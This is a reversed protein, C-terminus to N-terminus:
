VMLPVDPVDERYTIPPQPVQLAGQDGSDPLPTPACAGVFSGGTTFASTRTTTSTHTNSTHMRWMSILAATRGGGSSSRAIAGEMTAVGGRTTNGHADDGATHGSDHMTKGQANDANSIRSM